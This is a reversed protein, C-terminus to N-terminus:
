DLGKGMSSNFPEQKQRLLLYLAFGAGVGPVIGILLAIWGHRIRYMRAEYIVWVALVLWCSIVDLAYGTAYPNVFGAAFAGMIDPKEILPPLCIAAAAITFGSGLVVLLLCFERQSMSSRSPFSSFVAAKYHM